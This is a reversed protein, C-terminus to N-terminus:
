FLSTFSSSLFIWSKHYGTRVTKEEAPLVSSWFCSLAGRRISMWHPCLQESSFSTNQFCPASAIAMLLSAIQYKYTTHLFWPTKFPQLKASLIGNNTSYFQISVLMSGQCYDSQDACYKGTLYFSMQNDLTLSERLYQGALFCLGILLPHNLWCRPVVGPLKSLIIVFWFWIKDGFIQIKLWRGLQSRMLLREHWCLSISTKSVSLFRRHCKIPMIVDSAKM